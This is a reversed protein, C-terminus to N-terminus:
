PSRWSKTIGLRAGQIAAITLLLDLSVAGRLAIPLLSLAFRAIYRIRWLPQDGIAHHVFTARRTEESRVLERIPTRHLSSRMHNGTLSPLVRLVWGRKRVRVSYDVDDFGYPGYDAVFAGVQDLVARRFSMNCGSLWPVDHAHSPFDRPPCTHFGGWDIRYDRSAWGFLRWVLARWRPIPERVYGGVGGVRPDAYGAVLHDIWGLPVVFDDDIFAVLRGSAVRIGENRAAFVGLRRGAEVVVLGLGPCSGALLAREQPDYEQLVLVVECTASRVQRALAVLARRLEEPRNLSIIVISLDPAHQALQYIHTM